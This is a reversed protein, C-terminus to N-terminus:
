LSKLFQKLESEKPMFMKAAMWRICAIKDNVQFDEHKVTEHGDEIVLFWLTLSAKVKPLHGKDSPMDKKLDVGEETNEKDLDFGSM